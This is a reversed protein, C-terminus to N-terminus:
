IGLNRCLIIKTLMRRHFNDNYPGWIQGSPTTYTMSNIFKKDSRSARALLTIQVSRIDTIVITVVGASDLYLFEAAQINDAIPQYGGTGNQKGISAPNPTGDPIGDGDSDKTPSFGFDINEQPGSIIENEDIDTTLHLRGALAVTIGANANGSPDYGAMHIGSTMLSFAARLNQQMEAVQDQALYVRQQSIHTAYVAAIIVSFVLITMMLEVLTFGKNTRM